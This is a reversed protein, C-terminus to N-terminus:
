DKQMDKDILRKIYRSYNGQKAIHRLMAREHSDILSYSIPKIVRDGCECKGPAALKGCAPCREMKM